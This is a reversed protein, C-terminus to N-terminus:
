GFVIHRTNLWFCYPSYKVLFLHVKQRATQLLLSCMSNVDLVMSSFIILEIETSVVFIGYRESVTEFHSWKVASFFGHRNRFLSGKGSTGVSCTAHRMKSNQIILTAILFPRVWLPPPAASICGGDGGFLFKFSVSKTTM